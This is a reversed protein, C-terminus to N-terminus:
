LDPDPVTDEGDLRPAPDAQPPVPLNYNNAVHGPRTTDGGGTHTFLPSHALGPKLLLLLTFVRVFLGLSNIPLHGPAYLRPRM